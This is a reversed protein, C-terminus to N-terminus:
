TVQFASCIDPWETKLKRKGKENVFVHRTGHTGISFCDSYQTLQCEIFESLECITHFDISNYFQFVEDLSKKGEGYIDPEFPSIATAEREQKSDLSLFWLLVTMTYMSQGYDSNRLIFDKEKIAHAVYYAAILSLKPETKEKTVFESPIACDLGTCSDDVYQYVTFRLGHKGAAEFQKFRNMYRESPQLEEYVTQSVLIQCGDAKDMIRSALNIGAGAINSRRNIDTVVIDTNQNIGIRVQFQRSKNKESSNHEELLSLIQLVIQIHSDYQLNPELLAICMGDGTPIINSGVKSEYTEISQKVIINLKTVIASQAEASRNSFSVVDLFVYKCYQRVVEDCQTEM